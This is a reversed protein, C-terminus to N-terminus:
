EDGAESENLNVFLWAERAAGDSMVVRASVHTFGRKRAAALRHQGDIIWYTGDERHGVTPATFLDDDWNSYIEDVWAADLDRAYTPDVGLGIIEVEILVIRPTKENVNQDTM